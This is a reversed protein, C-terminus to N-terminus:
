RNGEGESANEMKEVLNIANRQSNNESDDLISIIPEQIIVLGPTWCHLALHSTNTM